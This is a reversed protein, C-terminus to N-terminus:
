SSSALLSLLLEGWNGSPMHTATCCEASHCPWGTNEMNAADEGHLGFGHSFPPIQMRCLILDFNVQLHGSGKLPLNQSIPLDCSWPLPYPHFRRVALLQSRGATPSIPAMMAGLVQCCWPCWGGPPSPCFFLSVEAAVM